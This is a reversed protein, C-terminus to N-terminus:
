CHSKVAHCRIRYYLPRTFEPNAYCQSCCPRMDNAQNDSRCASANAQSYHSPKSEANAQLADQRSPCTYGGTRGVMGFFNSSFGEELLTKAGVPIVVAAM